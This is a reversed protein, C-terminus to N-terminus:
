RAGGAPGRSVRGAPLTRRVVRVLRTPPPSWPDCDHPDWAYSPTSGCVLDALEPVRLETAAWAYPEVSASSGPGPHGLLGLRAECTDRLLRESVARWWPSGPREHDHPNMLGRRVQWDVFALAARPYARHPSGTGGAPSM